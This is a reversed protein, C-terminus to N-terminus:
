KNDKVAQKVIEQTLSDFEGNARRVYVFSLAWFFIFLFLEVAVGITLMGGELISQGLAAPRYAVMMVFGYFLILVIAALTWAFRGRKKVLEQFKPNGRM